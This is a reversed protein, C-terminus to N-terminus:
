APQSPKTTTKPAYKHLQSLPCSLFDDNMDSLGAMWVRLKDNDIKMTGDRNIRGITNRDDDFAVTCKRGDARILLSNPKAAYCIYGVDRLDKESSASRTEIKLPIAIESSSPTPKERGWLKDHYATLEDVRKNYESYSLFETEKNLPGGLDNVKHFFVVFRPDSGFDHHIKDLLPFLSPMNTHTVHVRLKIQFDLDTKSAALLNNWILDFTGEGNAKIRTKNHTERDGDITIQYHKMHADVLDKLVDPTLKSGNTTLGGNLGTGSVACIDRAARSIDLVVQKAVLPEGGFWSLTLSDLEPARKKILNLIGEVVDDKMRGLLFDEYCYTCRFNCKETSLLILEMKRPDLAEALTPSIKM